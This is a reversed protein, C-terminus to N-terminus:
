ISKCISHSNFDRNDWGRGGPGMQGYSRTIDAWVCPGNWMYQLITRGEGLVCPGNGMNQLMTRGEGLVCPGNGMYQVITRGEGLVCRREGRITSNYM